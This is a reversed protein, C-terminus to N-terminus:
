KLLKEFRNSLDLCKFIKYEDNKENFWVIFMDKIKLNTNKEIIFKYLSLQMSYHNFNCDDLDQFPYKLKAWKNEKKIEKNTKWDALVIGNHKKSFYIQDIMGAIQFNEGNYKLNLDGIVLESKVPVLYKQSKFYYSNFMQKLKNSVDVEDYKNNIKNEAFKHLNTGKYCADDAIKKWEALIEEQTIGREEAKRKSWYEEDFENAFKHIFGTSGIPFRKTENDYYYKHDAESFHIYDFKALELITKM